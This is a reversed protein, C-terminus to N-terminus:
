SNIIYLLKFDAFVERMLCVKGDVNVRDDIDSILATCFSSVNQRAKEMEESISNEDTTM